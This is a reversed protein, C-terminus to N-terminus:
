AGGRASRAQLQLLRLKGGLWACPMATAVLALPYWHPGFGKNWTTVAGVTSLILGVVGGALAHEMPRYPALQATIYSGMIAYLSRYVTALLLLPNSMQQGIAPFIGAKSMGMDTVVSLIVVVVFGAFLAGLSRVLRLPAETENM